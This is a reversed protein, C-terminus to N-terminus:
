RSDGRAKCAAASGRPARLAGHCVAHPAPSLRDRRSSSAKFISRTSRFDFITLLLEHRHLTRSAGPPRSSSGNSATPPAQTHLPHRAAASRSAKQKAPPRKKSKAKGNVKGRTAGKAKRGGFTKSKTAAPAPKFPDFDDDESPEDPEDQELEDEEETEVTVFKRETPKPSSHLPAPSSTAAPEREDLDSLSTLSSDDAPDEVEATAAPGAPPAEEDRAFLGARAKKAVPAKSKAPAKGGKKGVGKKGKQEVQKKEAVAEVAEADPGDDQEDMSMRKRKRLTYIGPSAELLAAARRAAEDDM